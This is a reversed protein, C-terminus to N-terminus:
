LYRMFHFTGILYHGISVSILLTVLWISWRRIGLATLLLLPVTFDLTYRPGYQVWGTGMLLLIPIAVLVITVVLVLASLRSRKETFAWFVGFFVPSLLFLSGGQYSSDRLPLPYAVYQYFFNTPVYHLSFAGFHEYDSRFERVMDHYALGNDFMNGFRLYNYLGIFAIALVVPMLGVVMYRVLRHREFRYRNLLYYAPWVGAFVLHNRTLLAAALALGTFAFASWGDFTLTALYACAVCLFGVEQGTFWVRGFPALTLNVTGFAFLLVLM